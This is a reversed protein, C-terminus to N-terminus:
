NEEKDVSYFRRILTKLKQGGRRLYSLKKEKYTSLERTIEDKMDDIASFLDAQESVARFSKSGMLLNIEARFIDGAQHHRTTRGLEVDAILAGGEEPLFKEITELRKHLYNSIEQTIEVGTGKLNITM